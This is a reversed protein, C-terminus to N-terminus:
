RNATDPQNENCAPIELWFGQASEFGINGGMAEVIRKSIALGMGAEEATGNKGGPGDSGDFLSEQREVPIGPGSGEASFCVLRNGTVRYLLTISDGPRSHRIANSLLQALIRRLRGFDACVCLGNNGDPKEILTINREKALSAAMAACERVLLNAPIAEVASQLQGAECSALDILDNVMTLLHRGARLIQGVEERQNENLAADMELLQGFGLVHNLPTRLEHSINGLFESKARSAAEAAERALALEATRQQVRQELENQSQRLALHTRVRALIEERQFPKNIYDVGGAEFGRVRAAVDTMASVFIVPVGSTRSDQKLRRCIEFGDIGSLRVDLLFLAPAAALASKLALEASPTARVAYGAEKLITALMDLNAAVDDVILIEATNPTTGM